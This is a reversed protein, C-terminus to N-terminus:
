KRGRKTGCKRSGKRGCTESSGVGSKVAGNQASYVPVHHGRVLAPFGVAPIRCVFWCMYEILMLFIDLWKTFPWCHYVVVRHLNDM